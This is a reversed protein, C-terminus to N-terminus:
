IRELLRLRGISLRSRKEYLIFAKLMPVIDESWTHQPILDTRDIVNESWYRELRKDCGDGTSVIVANIAGISTGSVCKIDPLIEKEYLFRLAGVQFDGLTGGGGLVIGTPM